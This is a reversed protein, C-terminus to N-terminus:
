DLYVSECVSHSLSAARIGNIFKKSTGIKIGGCGRKRMGFYRGRLMYFPIQLFGWCCVLAIAKKKKEQMSEQLWLM